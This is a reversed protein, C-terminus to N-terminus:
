KEKCERALAWDPIVGGRVWRPRRGSKFAAAALAIGPLVLLFFLFGCAFGRWAATVNLGLGKRFMVLILIAEVAYLLTSRLGPNPLFGALSLGWHSFISDGLRAGLVVGLAGVSYSLGVTGLIPLAGAYAILGVTWQTLALLATFLAFGLWRPICFGVIAGFVRYLPTNEGKWEEWIHVGTFVIDATLMGGFALASAGFTSISGFYQLSTNM